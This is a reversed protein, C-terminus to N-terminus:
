RFAKDIRETRALGARLERARRRWALADEAATLAQLHLLTASVGCWEPLARATRLLYVADRVADRAHGYFFRVARRTLVPEVIRRTTM